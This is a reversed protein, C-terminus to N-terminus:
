SLRDSVAGSDRLVLRVGRLCALTLFVVVETALGADVSFGADEERMKNVESLFLYRKGGAGRM